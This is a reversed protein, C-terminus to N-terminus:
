PEARLVMVMISLEEQFFCLVLAVAPVRPARDSISPEAQVLDAMAVATLGVQPDQPVATPVEQLVRRVTAVATPGEPLVRRVTVVVSPGVQLDRRITAEALPGELALRVTAVATPGEQLVRRVTVM